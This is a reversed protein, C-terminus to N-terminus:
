SLRFGTKQLLPACVAIPTGFGSVGQLFALLVWALLLVNETPRPLM